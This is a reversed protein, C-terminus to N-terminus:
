TAAAACSKSSKRRSDSAKRKSTARDSNPLVYMPQVKQQIFEDFRGKHQLRIRDFCRSSVIEKKFRELLNSGEKARILVYIKDVCGLSYLFKELLVKGLFGTTGTILIRKGEYRERIPM